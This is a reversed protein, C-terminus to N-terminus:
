SKTGFQGTSFQATGFQGVIMKLDVIGRTSCKIGTWGEQGDMLGTGEGNKKKEVFSINGEGFLKRMKRRRWFFIKEEGFVNRIKSEQKEEGGLFIKGHGFIKRRERRRKEEGGFINKGEGFIEEAFFINDKEM